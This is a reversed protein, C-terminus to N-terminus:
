LGIERCSYSGHYDSDRHGLWWCVAQDKALTICWSVKKIIYDYLSM